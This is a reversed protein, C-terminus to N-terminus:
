VELHVAQPDLGDQGMAIVAAAVHECADFRGACDCEWEGDGPYLVVTRAISSGPGSVRLVVEDARGGTSRERTVARDRALTVGKSWLGRPCAERVAELLPHDAM